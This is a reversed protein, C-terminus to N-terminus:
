YLATSYLVAYHLVACLPATCHLATTVMDIRKNRLGVIDEREAITQSSKKRRMGMGAGEGERERERRSNTSNTDSDSNMSNSRRLKSGGTGVGAGAGGTFQNLKFTEFEALGEAVADQLSDPAPSQPTPSQTRSNPGTSRALGSIDSKFSTNTSNRISSNGNNTSAPKPINSKSNNETNPSVTNEINRNRKTRVPNFTTDSRLESENGNGNGHELNDAPFFTGPEKTSGPTTITGGLRGRNMRDAASIAELSQRLVNDHEKIERPTRKGPSEVKEKDKRRQRRSVSSNPQEPHHQYTSVAPFTGIENENEDKESDEVIDITISPKGYSLPKGPSTQSMLDKPTPDRKAGNASFSRNKEKYTKVATMADFLGQPLPDTKPPQSNPPSIKRSPDGGAGTGAGVGTNVGVGGGGRRGSVPRARQAFEPSGQSASSNPVTKPRLGTLWAPPADAVGEVDLETIGKSLSLPVSLTTDKNRDAGKNGSGNSNSDPSSDLHGKNELSSSRRSSGSGTGTGTTATSTGESKATKMRPLKGLPIIQSAHKNPAFVAMINSEIYKGIKVMASSESSSEEDVTGSWVCVAGVYVDIDKAASSALPTYNNQPSSPGSNWVHLQLSNIMTEQDFFMGVYQQPLLGELFIDLSYGTTIPGKWNNKGGSVGVGTGGINVNSNTNTNVSSSISNGLLSQITRVAESTAPLQQIGSMIRVSFTRLDIWLRSNADGDNNRSNTSSKEGIEYTLRISELSAFKAKEWTNHIRIRICINGSFPKEIEVASFSQDEPPFSILRSPPGQLSSSTEFFNKLECAAPSLITNSLVFGEKLNKTNINEPQPFKPTSGVQLRMPSGFSGPQTPTRARLPSTSANPSFVLQSSTKMPSQVSATLPINRFPDVVIGKRGGTDQSATNGRLSKSLESEFEEPMSSSSNRRNEEEEEDEVEEEDQYYEEMDEFDEGYDQGEEEEEDDDLAMRGRPNGNSNGSKLDLPGQNDGVRIGFLFKPRGVAWGRRPVAAGPEKALEAESSPLSVARRSPASTQGAARPKRTTPTTRQANAGLFHTMFGKEKEENELQVGTKSTMLKKIRNREQLLSLYEQRKEIDTAPTRRPGGYNNGDEDSMATDTIM